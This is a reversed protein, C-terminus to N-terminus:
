RRRGAAQRVCNTLHRAADSVVPQREVRDRVLPNEGTPVRGHRDAQRSRQEAVAGAIEGLQRLAARPLRVAGDAITMGWQAAMWGRPSRGTEDGSLELRVVDATPDDVPLLRALDVVLDLGFQEVPTLSNGSPLRIM